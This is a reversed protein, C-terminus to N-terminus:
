QERWRKVIFRVGPDRASLNAECYPLTEIETTLLSSIAAPTSVMAADVEAPDTKLQENLEWLAKVLGSDDACRAQIQQSNRAAYIRMNTGLSLLSVGIALMLVIAFVAM